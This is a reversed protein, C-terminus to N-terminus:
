VPLSELPAYGDTDSEVLYPQYAKKNTIEPFNRRYSWWAILTGILGGTFIDVFHHRYDETRSLAILAAGLTPVGAVVARWSGVRENTVVLQGALWLSSYFLGAFSISSHGSPTTRFGDLLVGLNTNTCVDKAFVLVDRPADARPICRSIFDPRHRGIFNKLIDTVVSTLLTSVLLGLLSVFTVYLKNKPKTFLLSVVGIVIFPAWLAYFFLAGVPVREHEAYPHSITLDNIFFQRQFPELYWAVYYAVILAAVLILDNLKWLYLKVLTPYKDLGLTVRDVRKDKHFYNIINYLTDSM